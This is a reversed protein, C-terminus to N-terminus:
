LEIGLIEPLEWLSRIEYTVKLDLTNTHAEPNYWCTDISATLGGTMDSTLSDGVLICKGKDFRDSGRKNKKEDSDADQEALYTFCADFFEKQPKPYGILESVFVGDMLRDLGSLKVKRAQTKNVGNTVIYQRFGKEKLIAVLRDAEEMFYFVSGLTDQYIGHIEEARIHTIHLEEFLTIFRGILVEEKTIEGREYRKWYSDNIDAYRNIIQETIALNLKDFTYRLAFSQSKNFDLLTQDLDWLIAKYKQM